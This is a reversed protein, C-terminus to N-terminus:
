DSDDGTLDIVELEEGTASSSGGDGSCVHFQVTRRTMYLGCGLCKAFLNQFHAESLGPKTYSDLQLFLSFDSLDPPYFTPIASIDVDTFTLILLPFGSEQLRCM